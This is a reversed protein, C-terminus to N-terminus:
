AQQVLITLNTAYLSGQINLVVTICYDHGGASEEHTQHM